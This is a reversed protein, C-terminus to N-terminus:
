KGGEPKGIDPPDLEAALQTCLREAIDAVRSDLGNAEDHCGSERLKKSLKGLESARERAATLLERLDDKSLEMTVVHEHKGAM